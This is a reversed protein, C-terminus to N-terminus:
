FSGFGDLGAGPQFNEQFSMEFHARCFDKGAQYPFSENM